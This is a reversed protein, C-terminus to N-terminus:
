REKLKKYTALRKPAIRPATMGKSRMSAIPKLLVRRDPITSFKRIAAEAKARESRGVDTASFCSAGQGSDRSTGTAGLALRRIRSKRVPKVLMPASTTQIRRKVGLMPGM